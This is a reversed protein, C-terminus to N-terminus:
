KLNKLKELHSQVRIVQSANMPFFKQTIHQAQILYAIAQNKLNQSQQSDGRESAHESKKLYLEALIELAIYGEPHNNKQFMDLSRSVLNEGREIQNELIYVQGLNRLIRAIETHNKDYNKEYIMLSNELLNKAKEYDGSKKYINGLLSDVWALRVHNESFCNKYIELAKELLTKAHEHKGLEGYIAGLHATVWAIRAHNESLSQRYLTLSQELLNRAEEFNGLEKHAIGLHALVWSVKIPHESSNQKYISLSQECLEKARQYDGLRRYVNGLHALARAIGVHNQAFHKKYTGLSEECLHKAKNHDGLESYVDGLYMLTQALHFPNKHGNQSADLLNKELINKSKKYDSLYYYIYGLKGEISTRTKNDLLNHRKLSMECHPILIKMKLIDEANIVEDIYQELIKFASQLLPTNKEISLIKTLHELSIEQTSRHISFTSPLFSTASEHTVLSYKKLNYIFNEVVLDNKFLILLDRPIEQFNLLSILLLLDKFSRHTNTLEQLSLTIIKYRTKTYNTAEKLVNEQISTFDKDNGMLHELYKGYPVNTAKLYYAAISVDLPFPPIDNLFKKTQEAQSSDFKNSNGSTMIKTFLSLKEEPSLENIQITTNINNNNEINKDRTLIIVRGKGWVSADHPVYEQIDGLKEVNDYILLWNSHSKLKERVFSIIKIAKETAVKIDKLEKLKKRELETKSLADALNEFANNLSEKTEANIEWTVNTKQERAYYRAITTKGAGGIGVLAVTQIDQPGKLNDGIRAMVHPRDLFTSQTPIVLDPRISAEANINGQNSAKKNASPISFGLWLACLCLASIVPWHMKRRQLTTVLTHIHSAVKAALSRIRLFNTALLVPSTPNTSSENIADYQAKFELTIENFNVKPFIKKLIVFAFAYYNEQFFFDIYEVPDLEKELDTKADKDLFLTIICNPKESAKKVLHLFNRQGMDDKSQGLFMNSLFCLAYDTQWQEIDSLADVTLKHGGKEEISLEIGAIKFHHQLTRAILTSNKQENWYVLLCSPHKFNLLKAVKLLQKEFCEQIRLGRYYKKIYLFKDSNEIFDILGDRSNCELKMTINRMHTEITKPTISLFSSITKASRGSCLYAIIDIERRTFRVNNVTELHESYIEQPLIINNAQM